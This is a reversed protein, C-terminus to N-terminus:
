ALKYRFYSVLKSQRDYQWRNDYLIADGGDEAREVVLDLVVAPRRLRELPECAGDELGPEDVELGDLGFGFAAGGEGGHWLVDEVGQGGREDVGLEAGHRLPPPTALKTINQILMPIGDLRCFEFVVHWVDAQLVHRTAANAKGVPAFNPRHRAVLSTEFCSIKEEALEPWIEMLHADGREVSDTGSVDDYHSWLGRFPKGVAKAM